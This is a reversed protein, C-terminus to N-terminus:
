YEAVQNASVFENTAVRYYKVDNIYTYEDTYWNSSEQLARDTVTKGEDTVLKALIDSNVRVKSAKRYYLYVDSAKVWQNTAVRYYKVGNLQMLEDSYWNSGPALKRDTMLRGDYDYVKVDPKKTYTAITDEIGDINRSVSSSTSSGTSGSSETGKNPNTDKKPQYVLHIEINKDEHNEAGSIYSKNDNEEGILAFNQLLVKTVSKGSESAIPSLNKYSYDNQLTTIDKDLSDKTIPLKTENGDQDTEIYYSGKFDSKNSIEGESILQDSVDQIKGDIDANVNDLSEGIDLSFNVNKGLSKGSTDTQIITVKIPKYYILSFGMVMGNKIANVGNAYKTVNYLFSTGTYGVMFDAYREPFYSVTGDTGYVLISTVGPDTKSISPRVYPFPKLLRTSSIGAEKLRNNFDETGIESLPVKIFSIDKGVPENDDYHQVVNITVTGSNSTEDASTKSDNSESQINAVPGSITSAKTTIISFSSCLAIGAVFGIVLHFLFNINLKANTLKNKSDKM